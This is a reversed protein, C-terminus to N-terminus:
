QPNHGSKDTDRSVVSPFSPQRTIVAYIWIDKHSVTVANQTRSSRWLSLHEIRITQANQCKSYSSDPRNCGPGESTQPYQRPSHHPCVLGPSHTHTWSSDSVSVFETREASVFRALLLRYPNIYWHKYRQHHIYNYQIYFFFGTYVVMNFIHLYLMDIFWICTLINHDLTAKYESGKNCAKAHLTFMCM